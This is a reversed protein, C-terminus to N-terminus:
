CSVRPKLTRCSCSKELPVAPALDDIGPVPIVPRSRMVELVNM